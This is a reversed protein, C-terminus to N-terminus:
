KKWDSLGYKALIEKLRGNKRLESIGADMMDAYSHSMKNVPSFAIFLDPDSALNPSAIRFLEPNKKLLKLTFSLVLPNEVFGDIRKNETMQILRNLPNEGSIIKFAPNKSKLQQDIVQGYTYNNIVGIKKGKLSDVNTYNWSDSGMTFYNTILQGFPNSPYIFTPADVKSTGILANYKGSKVDAIARPWNMVDYQIEIGNKQFIERAIEVMFGPKDSKPDCAYPCWLDTRVTITEAHLGTTLTLFFLSFIKLFQNM